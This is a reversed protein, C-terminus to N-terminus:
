ELLCADCSRKRRPCSTRRARGSPGICPHVDESGRKRSLPKPVLRVEVLDMKNIIGLSTGPLDIPRTAECAEQLLAAGGSPCRGLCVPIRNRPNARMRFTRGRVLSGPAQSTRRHEHRDQHASLSPCDPQVEDRGTIQLRPKGTGLDAPDQATPKIKRLNKVPQTAPLQRIGPRYSFRGHGVRAALLKAELWAQIVTTRTRRPARGNKLEASCSPATPWARPVGRNRCRHIRLPGSSVHVGPERLLVRAIHRCVRNKGVSRTPTDVQGRNRITAGRV